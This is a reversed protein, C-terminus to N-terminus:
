SEAPHGDPGVVRQRPEGDAGRPHRLEHPASPAAGASREGGAARRAKVRARLARVTKWDPFRYVPHSTSGQPRERAAGAAIAGVVQGMLDRGAACLTERWVRDAYLMPDGPPAVDIPFEATALIPGADLLATVRHVTVGVRPEGNYLEWFAPPAGKYDPLRGCHLNISGFRPLAFVSEKLVYTSVVVALDPALSRLAELGRDSEFRDVELVPIAARRAAPVERRAPLLSALLGRAKRVPLALLGAPGRRRYILRLRKWVSRPRPAPARVVGVVEAGAVGALAEAFDEGQENCSLVAVRLPRPLPADPLPPLPAAAHGPAAPAM